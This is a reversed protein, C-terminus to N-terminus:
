PPGLLMGRYVVRTDDLPKIFFPLYRRSLSSSLPLPSCISLFLFLSFNSATISPTVYVEESPMIEFSIDENIQFNERLSQRLLLNPLVVDSSVKAM